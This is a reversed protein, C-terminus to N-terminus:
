NQFLFSNMCSVYSTFKASFFIQLFGIIFQVHIYLKVKLMVKLINMNEAPFKKKFEFTNESM